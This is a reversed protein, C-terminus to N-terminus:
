FMCIQRVEEGCDGNAGACYLLVAQNDRHDDPRVRIEDLNRHKSLCLDLSPKMARIEAIIIEAIKIAIRKVALMEVKKARNSARSVSYLRM